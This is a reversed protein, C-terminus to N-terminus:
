FIKVCIKLPHRCILVREWPTLEAYVQAKLTDLKAELGEIEAKFIPNDQNQKKLHEIVTLYEHIQKEHPLKNL